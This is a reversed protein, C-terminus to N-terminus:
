EFITSNEVYTWPLINFQIDLDNDTPRLKLLVRENAQVAVPVEIDERVFQNGSGLKLWASVKMKHTSVDAANVGNHAPVIFTVTSCSQRDQPITLYDSMGVGAPTVAPSNKDPWLAGSWSVTTPINSLTVKHPNGWAYNAYGAPDDLTIQVQAVNRKMSISAYNMQDPLLNENVSGTVIEPAQPLVGAVPAMELMKASSRVSGPAPQIISGLNLGDATSALVIDWMGAPVDRATLVDEQREVNILKTRFKGNDASSADGNFLYIDVNDSVGRTLNSLDMRVEGYQTPTKEEPAKDKCSSLSALVCLGAAVAMVGGTINRNDALCKLKCM